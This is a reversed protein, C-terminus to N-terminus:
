RTLVLAHLRKEFDKFDDPSFGEKNHARANVLKKELDRFILRREYKTAAEGVRLAQDISLSKLLKPLVEGQAHSFVYKAETGTVKLDKMRQLAASKEGNRIMTVAQSLDQQRKAQETTRKGKPVSEYAYHQALTVAPSKSISASARNFGAFALPNIHGTDRLQQQVQTVTFPKVEDFGYKLLSLGQKYYPDDEARIKNGFYDQNTLVSLLGSFLPSMKSKVTGLPDTEYGYADKMYSPLSIREDSGDANKRGSRPFYLDRLGQPNQGYVLRQMMAGYIGMVTPLALAYAARNSFGKPMDHIWHPADAPLKGGIKEGVRRAIGSPIDLFGGGVERITGLTWGMSRVSAQSLDKVLPNWFMNDYVLQGFRNDISDWAKAAIAHFEEDTMPGKHAALDDQLMESFAGLKVRPVVQQMLHSAFKETAAFPLAKAVGLVEKRGWAKQFAKVAQNTYIDPEGFRGGGKIVGDIIQRMKPDGIGKLFADKIAGGAKYDRVPTLPNLGRVGHKAAGVVDGRFLNKYGLAAESIMSNFGTTAYHFGSFGLNLQNMANNAALYNKMFFTNRIGKGLANNMVAAVQTPAVYDGLKHVGPARIEADNTGLVLSPKIDRIAGLKHRDIFAEFLRSTEPALRALLHPAHVYAHVLNAVMEQQKETYRKYSNSPTSGEYRLAALKKMEAMTTDREPGQFLARRLGFKRDIAHGIEHTLVSEPGGFKTEIGRKSELGWADPHGKLSVKREHKVGLDRALQNLQGMMKEDYGEHIVMRGDHNVQFLKDDLYTWGEPMPHGVALYKVQGTDKMERLLRQANIFLDMQHAHALVMDVPNDSILKYGKAMGAEITSLTRKKLASKNGELPRKTRRLWEGVVGPKEWLHPFYNVYYQKLLGKGLAQVEARKTDLVKRIDAAFKDLEPSGQPAGAEMRKIFEYNDKPTRKSFYDHAQKLAYADKAQTAAITAFHERLRLGIDKAGQGLKMPAFAKLISDSAQSLFGAEKPTVKVPGSPTGGTPSPNMVLKPAGNNGTGKKGKAENVDFLSAPPKSSSASSERSDRSLFHNDGHDDLIERIGAPMDDASMPMLVGKVEGDQVVGLARASPKGLPADYRRVFDAKPFQKKIFDYYKLDIPTGDDFWLRSVMGDRGFSRSIAVPKLTNHDLDSYSPVIREINPAPRTSLDGKPTGELAM